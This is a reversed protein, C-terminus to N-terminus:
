DRSRNKNRRGASFGAGKLCNEMVRAPRLIEFIREAQANRPKYFFRKERGGTRNGKGKYFLVRAIQKARTTKTAGLPIAGSRARRKAKEGPRSFM